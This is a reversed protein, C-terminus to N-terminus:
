VTRNLFITSVCLLLSLDGFQAVGLPTDEYLKVVGVDFHRAHPAWQWVTVNRVDRTTVQFFMGRMRLLMMVQVVASTELTSLM